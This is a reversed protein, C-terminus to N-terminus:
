NVHIDCWTGNGIRTGEGLMWGGNSTDVPYYIIDHSTNQDNGNSGIRGIVWKADNSIGYCYDSLGASGLGQGVGNEIRCLENRAWILYKSNPGWCPHCGPGGAGPVIKNEQVDYVLIGKPRFAVYRGNPSCQLHASPGNAREPCIAHQVPETFSGDAGITTKRIINGFGNSDISNYPEAYSYYLTKTDQDSDEGWTPWYGHGIRIPKAPLEGDIRVIYIDYNGFNHYDGPPDYRGDRHKLERAFAVWKGNMSIVCQIDSYTGKECITKKTSEEPGVGKKIDMYKLERNEHDGESWVVFGNFSNEVSVCLGNHLTNINNEPQSYDVFKTPSTRNLCEEVNTFGDGDKDQAGDAADSPNLGYRTEWADPMGDSDSDIPAPRSRLEPWGGVDYQSDIIGCNKSTDAVNYRKEYSPGEFTANGKRVERIIRLDVADRAPLSAGAHELVSNYAEEATQENIAMAPWPKDLKLGTIAEVNVPNHKQVGKIPTLSPVVGKWNDNTVEESGAMVNNAIYWKGYDSDGNRSWPAAIQHSKIGPQTAPGPKYYNAVVNITSFNFKSSGRQKSEAGYTSEFGWNYIVNNRYDTNGSGSAFRINRNSNNAILNHHYTSYNSGWIGGFGHNNKTPHNSNFMSEAVICWQVTTYEGHYVSMVEDVSWSASVHDIILNKVYRSSVADADKLAEDGLRVRIYRIIVENASIVLPYGKLCIGDGPATQGAITIYPNKIRLDSKLAITGSVTFVVTRPGIAEVAERLSGTGSDNLNTVQYVTGGRGGVTYKGYGEAGPFALQQSWSSSFFLFSILVILFLNKM